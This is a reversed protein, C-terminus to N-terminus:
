EPTGELLETFFDENNRILADLQFDQGRRAAATCYRIRLEESSLMQKLGEYLGAESNETIIGYENDGLLEAMGSCDTTVVSKGLIMAETIVTSFGEYLSSCVIIDAERFAPYPNPLFGPMYVSGELHHAACYAELEARGPGDGLIWLDHELGEELLHRHVRLLRDYGKEPYMRGVTLITCRRKHLSDPLPEAAKACIDGNDVVNHLVIADDAKGFLSVFSSRVDQSVCVVKDFRSYWAACKRRLSDPDDTAKDLKCHVWAAKKAKRNTSSSLVKTPGFELYAIELDYDGAMRLRYTLGLAAEIRAITRWFRSRAPYLSHHHIHPALYKGADEPWATLVTIDFRSPDMHNVLTRLVKEAGGSSLTTDIYFLLKHM